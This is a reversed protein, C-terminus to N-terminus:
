NCTLGCVSTVEAVCTADWSNTCCFSDVACIADVCDSQAADCDITLADGITCLGHACNGDAEPCTAEGCITRVERVCLDDWATDCCYPDAACITAECGGCSADLPSGETCRDHPCATCAVSAADIAADRPASQGTGGSDWSGPACNNRGRVLYWLGEGPSLVPHAISTAPTGLDRGQCTVNLFGADARLDALSGGVVDYVTGSGAEDALSPWELMSSSGDGFSLRLDDLTGPLDLSGADAPACDCADGRLDGDGDAQNGNAVLPCNDCADGTGDLDGDVTNICAATSDAPPGEVGNLNVPHVRYLHVGDGPNPDFFANLQASPYSGLGLFVPNPSDDTVRYVNYGLIDPGGANWNIVVGGQGPVAVVGGVAAPHQCPDGLGDGDRDAQDRNWSQPCNDISDALGDGDSDRCGEDTERDGDNDIGDCVEQGPLLAYELNDPRIEGPFAGDPDPLGSTNEGGSSRSTGCDVDPRGPPRCDQADALMESRYAAPQTYCRQDAADNYLMLCHPPSPVIEWDDHGLMTEGDTAGCGTDVVGDGSDDDGDGCQEDGPPMFFDGGDGNLNESVCCTFLVEDCDWDIGDGGFTPLDALQWDSGRVLRAVTERGDSVMWARADGDAPDVNEEDEDRCTYQVVPTSGAVAHGCNNLVLQQAFPNSSFTQHLSGELLTPLERGSYDLSTVFSPSTDDPALPVMCMNGGNSRYNMLSFYNPKHNPGDWNGAYYLYDGVEVRADTGVRGGHGMGVAHGLEHMFRRSQGFVDERWCPSDGPRHDWCGEDLEEDGFPCDCSGKVPGCTNGDGCDSDASCPTVGDDSCVFRFGCSGAVCDASTDCYRGPDDSCVREFGDWQIDFNFGRFGGNSRGTRFRGYAFYHTWYRKPDVHWDGASDTRYSNTPWDVSSQPDGAPRPRENEEVHLWVGNIRYAARVNEVVGPWVRAGREYDYQLFLDRHCPNSGEAALDVIDGDAFRLGLLEWGDKLGDRDTDPDSSSTCLFAEIEDSLGDSDGDAGDNGFLVTRPPTVTVFGDNDGATAFFRMVRQGTAPTFPLVCSLSTGTGACSTTESGYDVNITLSTVAVDDDADAILTVTEGVAPEAPITSLRVRPSNGGALVIFSGTDSYGIRGVHDEVTVWYGHRGADYSRTFTTEVETDASGDFDQTAVLVRDVYFRITRVDGFTDRGRAHLTVDQDARTVAIPTHWASATPTRSDPPPVVSDDIRATAWSDPRSWFYGVPFAYDDGVSQLWHQMTQIRFLQDTDGPILSRPIRFEADYNFEFGDSVAAPGSPGSSGFGGAGNGYETSDVNSSQTVNVRFDDTAAVTGASNDPDLYVGAFSEPSAIGLDISDFCVYLNTSTAGVRVWRVAGDPNGGYGDGYYIPLKLSGYEGPLCTGNVSPSTALRPIRLPFFPEPPAAAGTFRAGSRLLGDHRGLADSPDGVLNWAAVLGPEEERIQRSLDARIADRARAHDWIRVEALNGPFPFSGSAEAGIGLDTAVIPLTTPTSAAHDLVGNIYYRRTTGDFSVAVHTWEGLPIPRLGDQSSGGGNTYYRLRSACIGLWYGDGFNKGVVTYCGSNQTPRVWAEITIGGTPNLGPANPVQIWDPSSPGDLTLTGDVTGWAPITLTALALVPLLRRIM